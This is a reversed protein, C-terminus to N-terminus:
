LEGMEKESLVDELTERYTPYKELLDFLFDSCKEKV